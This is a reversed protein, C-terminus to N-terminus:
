AAVGLRRSGDLVITIEDALSLGAAADLALVVRQGDAVAHLEVGGPAPKVTVVAAHATM